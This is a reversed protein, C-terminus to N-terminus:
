LFGWRLTPRPQVQIAAGEPELTKLQEFLKIFSRQKNMYLHEHWRVRDDGRGAERNPGYESRGDDSIFDPFTHHTLERSRAPIKLDRIVGCLGHESGIAFADDASALGRLLRYGKHILLAMKDRFAWGDLGSARMKRVANEWFQDCISVDFILGKEIVELPDSKISKIFKITFPRAAEELAYYSTGSVTLVDDIYAEAADLFRKMRAATDEIWGPSFQKTIQSLIERPTLLKNKLAFDVLQEVIGYPKTGAKMEFPNLSGGALAIQILTGKVRRGLHDQTEVVTTFLRSNIPPFGAKSTIEFIANKQKPTLDVFNGATEIISQIMKENLPLPISVVKRDKLVYCVLNKGGWTLYLKKLDMKTPITYTLELSYGYEAIAMVEDAQGYLIYKAALATLSTPEGSHKFISYNIKLSPVRSVEADQKLEACDLSFYSDVISYVNVGLEEPFIKQEGGHVMLLPTKILVNEKQKKLKKILSSSSSSSASSSSTNGM